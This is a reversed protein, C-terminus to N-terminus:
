HRRSRRWVGFAVVLIGAAAIAAVRDVRLEGDPTHTAAVIKQKTSEVQRAVIAKPTAKRSLEDITGALRTRREALDTELSSISPTATSM